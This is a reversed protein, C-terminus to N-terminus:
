HRCVQAVTLGLYVFPLVNIAILVSGMTSVDFVKAEPSPHDTILAFGLMLSLTLVLSTLFALQDEMRGKYPGAFVIAVLYALCVLMAVLLQVPSGPAIACMAGTLM